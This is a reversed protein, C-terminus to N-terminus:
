PWVARAMRDLLEDRVQQTGAARDRLQWNRTIRIGPQWGVGGLGAMRDIRRPGAFANALLELHGLLQRREHVTPGGESSFRSRPETGRGRFRGVFEVLSEHWPDIQGSPDPTLAPVAGHGPPM